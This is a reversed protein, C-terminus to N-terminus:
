LLCGQGSDICKIRLLQGFKNLHKREEEIINKFAKKSQPDKAAALCEDYFVISRREMHLAEELATHRHEMRPLEEAELSTDFVHANMYNVIDDEEFADGRIEKEGALLGLFTALHKEEEEILFGIERKAEKDKINAALDKYFAIGDEEMKIAIKYAQVASFDSLAIKGAKDINVRM